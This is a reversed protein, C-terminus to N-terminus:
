IFLQMSSKAFSFLAPYRNRVCQMAPCELVLPGKSHLAHLQVAPVLAPGPFGPALAGPGTRHGLVNPLAHAEM